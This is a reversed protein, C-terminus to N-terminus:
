LLSQPQLAMFFKHNGQETRQAHYGGQSGCLVPMVQVLSSKTKLVKHGLSVGSWFFAMDGWVLPVPSSLATIRLGSHGRGRALPEEQGSGLWASVARLSHLSRVCVCRPLRTRLM